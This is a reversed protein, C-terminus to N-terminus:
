NQVFLWIGLSHTLEGPIPITEFSLVNTPGEKHRFRKNLDASETPDVICITLENVAAPHVLAKEVWSLFLKKTPLHTHRTQNILDIKIIPKSSKNVIPTKKKMLKLLKNFWPHRVVDTAQFFSFRIAKIDRLLTIAHRLGSETKAPFDIQTIDGTIVAKSGFGIRTLFMKMQEKSTNQGEDLIIFADNLTRGRMYALPAIEIVGKEILKAVTNAGVMEYLADYLPRLYPDIKQALDGPLFGLSEGAEVAPRVM